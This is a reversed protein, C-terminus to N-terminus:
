MVNLNNRFSNVVVEGDTSIRKIDISKLLEKLEPMPKNFYEEVKEKSGINAIFYNIRREVEQAVQGEDAYISDISAQNLFLKQIAMQEPIFCYPDGEIKQREYQMNRYQEEVQSKLIVEDGVVWVVEDIVNDQAQIAIPALLIAIILKVRKMM